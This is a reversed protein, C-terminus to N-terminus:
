SGSCFHEATKLLQPTTFPKVLWGKAGSQKARQIMKPDGETTLMVIPLTANRPDNKVREVMALGDMTPMNVDCFVLRIDTEQEIHKIGEIGNSAELVSYGAETLVRNLQSRVTSSDDVVLINGPM